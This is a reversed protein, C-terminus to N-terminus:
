PRCTRCPNYGEYIAEERTQFIRYSGAKLDAVSRCGPRHLRFRGHRVIYYSEPEHPISFLGVKNDMARRQATLFRKIRPRDLESKKFLLLYALGNELIAESVSVSDVYIFGLLRGYKDRRKDAFEIRAKRGLVMKELFATAEDHLPSGKEPTDINALRLKDGGRLRVTDGDIVEVITLRDDEKVEPQTNQAVRFVIILGVSFVVAAWRAFRGRTWRVARNYSQAM